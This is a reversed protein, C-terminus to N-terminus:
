IERRLNTWSEEGVFVEAPITLARGNITMPRELARKARAVVGAVAGRECALLVSDHGQLLVRGGHEAESEYLELMGENLVHVVTHQPEWAVAARLSEPDLAGGADFRPWFNCQWGCHSAVIPRRAMLTREVRNWWVGDLNPHLAHYGVYFEKAQALSISVGTLDAVDNVERWFKRYGMGYNLAHRGKKGLFREEPTIAGEPKGFVKSATWKHIDWAPDRWRELLEWDESLVASVRAEAQSLDAYVFVAGADPCLVDRCAFIPDRRAEQAPMNQLNTSHSVYFAEASSFRGTYAGAINFVTRVRGDPGPAIREYIERMTDLKAFRLASRVFGSKDYSLLSKLAEEDTTTHGDRSRHPLKLGNYLVDALQRPSSLNFSFTTHKGQTACTGCTLRKKKGNRCSTCVKTTWLLEREKLRDKIGEVIPEVRARCADAEAVLAALRERRLPENVRIGRATMAMVCPLLRRQFGYFDAASM